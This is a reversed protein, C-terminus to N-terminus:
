RMLLDEPPLTWSRALELLMEKAGPLKETGSSIFLTLALQRDQQLLAAAADEFTAVLCYEYEMEGNYRSEQRDYHDREIELYYLTRENISVTELRVIGAHNGILMEFDPKGRYTTWLDRIGLSVDLGKWRYEALGIKEVVNGQEPLLLTHFREWIHITKPSTLNKIRREHEFSLKQDGLIIYSQGNEFQANQDDADPVYRVTYNAIVVEARGLLADGLEVKLAEKPFRYRVTLNAANDAVQPLRERSTKDPYFYMEGEYGQYYYGKLKLEGELEMLFYPMPSTGSQISLVKMGAITDGIRVEEPSFRPPHSKPLRNEEIITADRVTASIHQREVLFFALLILLISCTISLRRSKEKRDM